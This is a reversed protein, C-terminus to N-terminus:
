FKYFSWRHRYLSSDQPETTNPFALRGTGIALDIRFIIELGRTTSFCELGKVISLWVMIWSCSTQEKTKQIESQNRNTKGSKDESKMRLIKKGARTLLSRHRQGNQGQAHGEANKEANWLASCESSAQSWTACALLSQFWWGTSKRVKSGDEPPFTTAKAPSYWDYYTRGWLIKLIPSRSQRLMSRAGPPIVAVGVRLTRAQPFHNLSKHTLKPKKM